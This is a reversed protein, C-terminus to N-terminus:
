LSSSITPMLNGSVKSTTSIGSPSFSGTYSISPQHQTNLCGNKRISSFRKLCHSQPYTNPEMKNIFSMQCSLLTLFRNTVPYSKCIFFHSEIAKPLVPFHNPLHIFRIKRFHHFDPQLGIFLCMIEDRSIVPAFIIVFYLRQQRLRLDKYILFINLQGTKDTHVALVNGTNK